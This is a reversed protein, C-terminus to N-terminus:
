AGPPALRQMVLQLDHWVKRKENVFLNKQREFRLLYAPHFTPMVPIGRYELWNGRLKTIGTLGLLYKLAVGGLLVILEPQLLEIQRQVFPLCAQAEGELPNRNQPPRCKLINAIYVGHEPNQAERDFGMAKIMNNLMEGARGVFVRGQRDEEAGPGEGIFMLRSQRFGGGCVVHQRTQYLACAQCTRMAQELEDWGLQQLPPLPRLAPAAVPAPAPASASLAPPATRATQAPASEKAQPRPEVLRVQLLARNQESLPLRSQGLLCKRRLIHQLQSILDSM